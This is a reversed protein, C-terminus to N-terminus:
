KHSMTNFVIECLILTGEICLYLCGLVAPSLQKGWLNLYEREHVTSFFPINDNKNSQMKLEVKSLLSLRSINM